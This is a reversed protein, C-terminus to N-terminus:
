ISARRALLVPQFFRGDIRRIEVFGARRLLSLLTDIAVAYYRTRGATITRGGDNSEHLFYMTLDYHDGDFEWCQFIIYRGSETVRVGHPRIQLPTRDERAYDRLTILTAGGPRTCAYFGRFAALLDQDSLLHPSSNDASLVVDFHKRHLDGCRKMDGVSFDITLGRRGAEERARNVAAASLDSATVTHGLQALGLSQTGIGCSVDLVSVPGPGLAERIIGDLAAAQDRITDEWDAYVLHYLPAIADYLEPDTSKPPGSRRETAGPAARRFPHTRDPM